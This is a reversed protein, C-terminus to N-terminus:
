KRAGEDGGRGEGGGEGRRCRPRQWFETARAGTPRDTRAFYFLNLAAHLDMAPRPTPNVECQRSSLGTAPRLTPLSFAPARVPLASQYRRRLPPCRQRGRDDAGVGGGGVVALWQGRESKVNVGAWETAAHM